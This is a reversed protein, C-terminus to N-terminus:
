KTKEIFQNLMENTVSRYYVFWSSFLMFMLSSIFITQKKEVYLFLKCIFRTAAATALLAVGLSLVYTGLIGFLDVANFRGQSGSDLWLRRCISLATTHTHTHLYMVNKKEQGIILM